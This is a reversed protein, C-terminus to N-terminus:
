ENGHCGLILALAYVRQKEHIQNGCEILAAVFPRFGIDFQFIILIHLLLPLIEVDLLVLAASSERFINLLIIM